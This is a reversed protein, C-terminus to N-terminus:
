ARLIFQTTVVKCYEGDLNALSIAHVQNAEHYAGSLDTLGFTFCADGALYIEYGLNGGHRVTTEVSNNTIVGAVILKDHGGVQLHEHLNTGIFASNVHKAIIIEGPRPAAEPKFENGSQGPRYTSEPETSDHRIHIIPRGKERWFDLLQSVNTEAAPNNREGWGPDDIAKQFDIILLVADDFKPM